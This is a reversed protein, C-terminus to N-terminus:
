LVDSIVFNLANEQNIRNTHQIFQSAIMIHDM